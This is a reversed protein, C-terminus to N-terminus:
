ANTVFGSLYNTIVNRGGSDPYHTERVFNMQRELIKVSATNNTDAVAM